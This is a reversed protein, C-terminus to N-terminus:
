ISEKQRGALRGRVRKKNSTCEVLIYIAQLSAMVRNGALGTGNSSSSLLSSSKVIRIGITDNLKTHIALEEVQSSAVVVMINQVVMTLLLLSAKANNVGIIIFAVVSLRRQTVLVPRFCLNPVMVALLDKIADKVDLWTEALALCDRMVLLCMSGKSYHHTKWIALAAPWTYNTCTVVVSEAV